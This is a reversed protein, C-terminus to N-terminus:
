EVTVPHPHVMNFLFGWENHLITNPQTHGLEDTARTMLTHEGIPAEWTFEFQTWAYKMIPNLLTAMSWTQGGDASWEVSVIKAHPSRAFGRIKQSGPSLTAPWSLALTSKINQENIPAGEAPTYEDARWEPGIYVYSETNRRVWIKKSSVTITDVWKISNTGVWGPVIARLPFGHDPPLIEDNMIYALITEPEMAKEISMPRSVGGERADHDLGKINVDVADSTIGATELIVRLPVGTWEAMGVGGLGWQLDGAIQGTVKEFLSRNNGACELFVPVTCSPLQLIDDYALELPNNIADGEVKLRYTSPDVRVTGVENCVFFLHNPTIFNTLKEAPTELAVFDDHVNYPTTDKVWLMEERPGNKPPPPAIPPCASLVATPGEHMLKAEFDQRPWGSPAVIKWLAEILKRNLEPAKDM